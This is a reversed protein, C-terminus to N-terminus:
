KKDKQLTKTVRSFEVLFTSGKGKGASEAWIKGGLGEVIQKAVYLGLGTGTINTKGADDARVFKEFLKPLAEPSIGVGTDSVVLRVKNRGSAEIKVRIEGQETYKIANDILNSIVQTVKGSDASILQPQPDNELVISLGKREVNPKQDTMVTRVLGGLDFVSLEYKMRGLEIRTINLFDEIVNVLKQSSLFIRDVAERAKEEVPGFSGELLMSAYGKIATLPSRLQHSAISVFETKQRDLEKLKENATKLDDNALSLKKALDEIKERQRVEKLVSQILLFGFITSLALLGLNLSLNLIDESLVSRILIFIWLAFFFFETAIVKISFLHHRIIAYAIGGIMLISSVQALWNLFVIQFTPFFLNSTVGITCSISTWLAIDFLHKKELPNKAAWYKKIIAYYGFLFCGVIFIIYFIKTNLNFILIKESNTPQIVSHILGNPYLSIIALIFNALGVGRLLKKSFFRKKDPFYSALSLFSVPVFLAFFYLLRAFLYVIEESQSSRYIIMMLSWLFISVTLALFSYGTEDKKHIAILIGFLLSIVASLSIFINILDFTLGM